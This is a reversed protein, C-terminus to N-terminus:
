NVKVHDLYAAPRSKGSHVEIRVTVSKGAHPTLDVDITVWKGPSDIPEDRVIQDAVFIKLVFDGVISANRWSKYSAIDFTLRPNGTQPVSVEGEVAAPHQEDVPHIRLIGRRGFEKDNYGPEMRTGCAVLKWGAQWFEVDRNTVPTRGFDAPWVDLTAPAQPAQVPIMFKNEDVSGGLRQVIAATMRECALILTNWSYDTYSFKKDAVAAIGSTWKADIASYGKMCGLIGAANSPNCDADQGCRTAIEITKDFDGEGYLMGMVIYAGNLAADINLAAGPLCDSDDQWKSEIKHWVALWDSPEERHWQIVDTIMAHYRSEEPIAALGANIVAHVDNDEFYAAAYMAAVFMGGYLGDGYNMIRGFIESLRNSEQPLGPCIIGILDAEIQYDIDDAHQNYQPHGSMPPMIGRRTNERGFLNAHWLQYETSAFARGAQENTIGLGHNELAKLFTMEVYIDDQDIAGAIREPSWPKLEDLIPKANSVFEYPWGFTVGMMQGAWAGKLKDLYRERSLEQQQASAPVLVAVVIQIALITLTFKRAM